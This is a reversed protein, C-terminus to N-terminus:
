IKIFDLYALKASMMLIAVMNILVVKLSEFFNKVITETKFQFRCKYEEIYFFNSIEMSFISIDASSLLHTM